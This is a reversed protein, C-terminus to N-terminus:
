LVEESPDTWNLLKGMVWEHMPRGDNDIGSATSLLVWKGSNLLENVTRVGLGEAWLSSIVKIETVPPLFSLEM